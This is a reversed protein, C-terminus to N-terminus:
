NAFTEGIWVDIDHIAADDDGRAAIRDLITRYLSEEEIQESLLAQVATTLLFDGEDFAQKFLNQLRATTDYEVQLATEFLASFSPFNSSETFQYPEITLPQNRDEIWGRVIEAHGHEGEAEKHFFNATAELGRMRAWSSRASYRLYNSTEHRFQENLSVLLVASLISMKCNRKPLFPAGEANPPLSRPM